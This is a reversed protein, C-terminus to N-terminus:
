VWNLKVKTGDPLDKIEHAIFGTFDLLQRMPIKKINSVAYEGGLPGPIVLYYCEGEALKGLAREAAEVLPSMEWDEKFKPKAREAALEEPTTGLLDCQLDEPIIRFYLDSDNRIIVNGFANHDILEVPRGIQWGWGAAIAQLLENM